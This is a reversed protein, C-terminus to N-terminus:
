QFPRVLSVDRVGVVLLEHVRLDQANEEVVQQTGMGEKRDVYLVAVVGAAVM